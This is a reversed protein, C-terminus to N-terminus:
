GHALQLPVIMVNHTLIRLLIERCQSWYTRARLAAGLNRKLMSVVTEVQWRQGYRTRNWRQRMLRRYRGTPLKTTQRGIRAPIWTHVGYTERAVVHAAESDFGADALLTRIPIQQVAAHLAARFYGHDTRPGRGPCGALILHSACDCVLGVAPYRRYTMMEWPASTAARRRIFYHSTHHADLGTGDMAATLGPKLRHARQADALLATMVRQLRRPKLVTRSAKHLTTWHPVADLELVERLDRSDTLIAAIGRYDTKFFEKLVLCAAVQPQTFKKPSFKSGYRPLAAQATRYAVEAVRKPSNSTQSM